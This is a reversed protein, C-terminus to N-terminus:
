LINTEILMRQTRETKSSNSNAKGVSLKNQRVCQCLLTCVSQLVTALCLRFKVESLNILYLLWALVPIIREPICFACDHRALMLQMTSHQVMNDWATMCLRQPLVVELRSRVSGISHKGCGMGIQSEWLHSLEPM